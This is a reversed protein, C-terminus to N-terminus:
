SQRNIVLYSVKSRSFIEISEQYVNGRAGNVKIGDAIRRSSSGFVSEQLQQLLEDVGAVITVNLLHKYLTHLYHGLSVRITCQRIRRGM